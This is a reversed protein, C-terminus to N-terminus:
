HFEHLHASRLDIAAGITKVHMRFVRTGVAFALLAKIKEVSPAFGRKIGFAFAGGEFPGFRECLDGFAVHRVSDVHAYFRLKSVFLERIERHGDDGDIGPIAQADGEAGLGAVIM